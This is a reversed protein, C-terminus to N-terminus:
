FKLNDKKPSVIWRMVSFSLSIIAADSTIESKFFRYELLPFGIIFFIFVITYIITMPAMPFFLSSFFYIEKYDRLVTQHMIDPTLLHKHVYHNFTYISFADSDVNNNVPYENIVIWNTYQTETSCKHRKNNKITQKNVWQPSKTAGYISHQSWHLSWNSTFQLGEPSNNQPLLTLMKIYIHIYIHHRGFFAIKYFLRFM